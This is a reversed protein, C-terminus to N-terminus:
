NAWFSFVNGFLIGLRRECYFDNKIVRFFKSFTDRDMTKDSETENQYLSNFYYKLISKKNDNLPGSFQSSLWIVGKFTM